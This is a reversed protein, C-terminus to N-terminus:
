GNPRPRHHGAAPHKAPAPSAEVAPSAMSHSQADAFTRVLKGLVQMDPYGDARVVVAEGPMQVVAAFGPAPDFGELLVRPGGPAGVWAVRHGGEGQFPKEYFPLLDGGPATAFVLAHLHHVNKLLATLQEDTVVGLFPNGGGGARGGGAVGSLFSKLAGLVDGERGDLEALVQAGEPTSIPLPTPAAQNAPAAQITTDQARAPIGTLPLLAAAAILLPKLKM